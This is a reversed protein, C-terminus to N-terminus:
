VAPSIQVSLVGFSVYPEQGAEAGHEAGGPDIPIPYWHGRDEERPNQSEGDEYEDALNKGEIYSFGHRDAYPIYPEHYGDGGHAGCPRYIAASGAAM